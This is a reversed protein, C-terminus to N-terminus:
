SAKALSVPQEEEDSSLLDALSVNLAKALDNLTKRYPFRVGREIDGITEATVGSERALDALSMSREERWYKVRSVFTGKQRRPRGGPQKRSTYKRDVGTTNYLVVGKESYFNIWYIERESAQMENEVTEIVSISPVLGESKLEKIWRDKKGTAQDGGIHQKFRTYLNNTIGVYCVDGSIPHSLKYVFYM